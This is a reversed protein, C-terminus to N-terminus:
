PKVLGRRVAYRVLSATEHIDLKGMLATRYTEVTRVTLKLQAAIERTTNGEAILQLVQLERPSLVEVPMGGVCKGIYSDVAFRAIGPSLYANGLNVERIAEGIVTAAEAKLVYGKIGANIAEIVYEEEQHVTLLIMKSRPSVRRIEKAADLGNLRPMSFDLIVIDPRFKEALKIAEMGNAGEGVVTFGDKELQARLGQLFLPHDDALLISVPM